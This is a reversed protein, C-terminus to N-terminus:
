IRLMIIMLVILILIWIVWMLCAEMITITICIQAMLISMLLLMCTTM